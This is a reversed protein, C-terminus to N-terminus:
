SQNLTYLIVKDKGVSLCGSCSRCGLIPVGIKYKRYFGRGVLGWKSCPCFVRLSPRKGRRARQNRLSEGLLQRYDPERLPFIRNRRQGVHHLGEDDSEQAQLQRRYDREPRHHLERHLSEERHHVPFWGPMTFPIASTSPPAASTTSNLANGPWPRPRARAAYFQPRM